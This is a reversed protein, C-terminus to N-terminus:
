PEAFYRPFPNGTTDSRLKGDPGGSNPSDLEPDPNSTAGDASTDGAPRADRSLADSARSDEM